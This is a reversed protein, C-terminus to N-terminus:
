KPHPCFPGTQNRAPLKVPLRVPPGALRLAVMGAPVASNKGIM